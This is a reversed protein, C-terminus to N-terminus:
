GLELNGPILINTDKIAKIRGVSGQQETALDHRGRQSGISQLM